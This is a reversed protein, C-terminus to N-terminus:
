KRGKMYNKIDEIIDDLLWPCCNNTDMECHFILGKDMNGSSWESVINPAIMDDILWNCPSVITFLIIPAKSLSLGGNVIEEAKGHM